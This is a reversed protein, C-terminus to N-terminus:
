NIPQNEKSAANQSADQTTTEDAWQVEIVQKETQDIKQKQELKDTYGLMQKSLWIMMTTNGNMAHDWMKRKLSMRGQERGKKFVAAFRRQITDPSCGLVAAAEAYSCNIAALKEVQAPDIKKRPRAM